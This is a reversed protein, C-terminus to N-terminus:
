KSQLTLIFERFKMRMPGVLSDPKICETLRLAIGLTLVHADVEGLPVSASSKRFTLNKMCSYLIRRGVPLLFTRRIEKKVHKGIRYLLRFYEILDITEYADVHLNLQEVSPLVRVIGDTTSTRQITASVTIPRFLACALIALICQLLQLPSKQSDSSYACIM